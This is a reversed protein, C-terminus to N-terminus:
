HFLSNNLKVKKANPRKNDDKFIKRGADLAAKISPSGSVRTITDIITKLDDDSVFEDRFALRESATPGYSVVSYRMKGM